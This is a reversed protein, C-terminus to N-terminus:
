VAAGVLASGLLGAIAATGSKIGTV